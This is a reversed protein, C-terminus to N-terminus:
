GSQSKTGWLPFTSIKVRQPSPIQPMSTSLLYMTKLSHLQQWHLFFFFVLFGVGFVVWYGSAAKSVQPSIRDKGPLYCHIVQFVWTYASSLPQSLASSSVQPFAMRPALESLGQWHQSVVVPGKFKSFWVLACINLKYEQLILAPLPKPHNESLAPHNKPHSYYFHLSIECCPIRPKANLLFEPRQSRGMPADKPQFCYTHQHSTLHATRRSHAAPTFFAFAARSYMLLPTEMQSSSTNCDRQLHQATANSFPPISHISHPVEGM